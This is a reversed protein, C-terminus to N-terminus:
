GGEAVPAASEPKGKSKRMRAAAQADTDVEFYGSDRIVQRAGSPLADWEHDTIDSAPLNRVEGTEDDRYQLYEAAEQHTVPKFGSEDPEAARVDRMPGVWKARVTESM